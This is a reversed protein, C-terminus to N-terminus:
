FIGLVEVVNEDCTFFLGHCFTNFSIANLTGKFDELSCGGIAEQWEAPSLLHSKWGKIGGRVGTESSLVSGRNLFIM